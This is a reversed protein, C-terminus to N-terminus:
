TWHGKGRETMAASSSASSTYRRGRLFHVVWRDLNWVDIRALEEPKCIAGLNHEIDAALNRTFTTFLIRGRGPLNRALWRARHM